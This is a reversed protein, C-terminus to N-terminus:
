RDGEDAGIRKWTPKSSALLLNRARGLPASPRHPSRRPRPGHRAQWHITKVLGMGADDDAAVRRNTLVLEQARRLGILRPRLWTAGGDLSLGTTPYAPLFHVSQETLLVDGRIALSPGAAPGNVM